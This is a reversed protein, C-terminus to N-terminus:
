FCYSFRTINYGGRIGFWDFVANVFNTETTAHVAVNPSILTLREEAILHDKVEQISYDEVLAGSVAYHKHDWM